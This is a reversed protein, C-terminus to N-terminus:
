HWDDYWFDFGFWDDYYTDGVYVDEHHRDSPRVEVTWDGAPQCTITQTLTAGALLGLSLMRKLFLNAKM